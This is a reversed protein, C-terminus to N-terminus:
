QLVQLEVIEDSYYIYIHLRTYDFNFYMMDVKFSCRFYLAQLRGQFSLNHQRRVTATGMVRDMTLQGTTQNARTRMSARYAYQQDLWRAIGENNRHLISERDPFNTRNVLVQVRPSDYWINVQLHLRHCRLCYQDKKEGFLHTCCTSWCARGWNMLETLVPKAWNKDPSLAKWKQSFRGQFADEWGLYTQSTFAQKAKINVTTDTYFQHIDQHIEPGELDGRWTIDGRHTCENSRVLKIGLELTQLLSCYLELYFSYAPFIGM